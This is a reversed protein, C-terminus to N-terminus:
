LFLEIIIKSSNKINGRVIIKLTFYKSILVLQSLHFQKGVQLHIM